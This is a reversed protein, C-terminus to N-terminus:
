SKNKMSSMFDGTILENFNNSTIPYFKAIKM